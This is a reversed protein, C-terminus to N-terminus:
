KVEAKLSFESWCSLMNKWMQSGVFEPAESAFWVECTLVLWFLFPGCVCGSVESDM